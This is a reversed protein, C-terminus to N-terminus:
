GHHIFLWFNFPYKFFVVVALFIVEIMPKDQFADGEERLEGLACCVGGDLLCCLQDNLVVSEAVCEALSFVLTGFVDCVDVFESLDAFSQFLADGGQSTIYQLM